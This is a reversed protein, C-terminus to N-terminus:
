SGSSLGSLRSDRPSTEDSNWNARAARNDASRRIKVVTLRFKSTDCATLSRTLRAAPASHRSSCNPRRAPSRAPHITPGYAACRKM